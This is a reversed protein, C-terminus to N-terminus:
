RRKGKLGRESPEAKRTRGTKTTSSTGSSLPQWQAFHTRLSAAGRVERPQQPAILMETKTGLTQRFERIVKAQARSRAACFDCELAAEAPVANNILLRGLPVKLRRLAAALRETEALSMREPIAVGVFECADRDTLLAITRKIGKSLGVLEEGVGRLSLAERYKLLLKILTHVWTLAVAPLELLRVLHGTPATDLVITAYRDEDLLDVMTSLAAIEDIGPPALAVLERMAERDFKIEWRSDGTLSDFLEDMWVRYRDTLEAFRAAPDIEMADLNKLGAVGRKFGGITEDFSDSLSHAPDTSFILFSESSADALALATASAATTKGVGGKGGFILLRRPATLPEIENRGSHLLPATAAASKRSGASKASVQAVTGEDTWVMCAFRRLAPLGRVEEALLPIHRIPMGKFDREIRKLWRAQMSARTRCQRCEDRPTEVRNVVLGTVPVGERRLAEMYRATEEVSMAEPITVLTFGTRSEDYLMARVREIRRALDLLFLDVDDAPTRARRMLRAVMYRHKAAMRDLALTWHAFVQPLSLMRTTHGTPATDVVIHSYADDADLESLEFLAMVEDMGPLSLDLLERIDGEDLLTGREAIRALVARHKRKFEELAAAADMERALLRAGGRRAVERTRDGIEIGLADSLSHAPDTSFLLVREGTRAGELLRLSASAAVTTKGVGGKGGFFLYRTSDPAPLAHSRTHTRKRKSPAARADKTM